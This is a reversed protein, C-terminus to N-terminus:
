SGEFSHYSIVIPADKPFRKVAYIINHGNITVSQVIGPKKLLGLKLDHLPVCKINIFGAGKLAAEVAAYDQQQYGLVSLPIKVKDSASEEKPAENNGKPYQWIYVAGGIACFGAFAVMYFASDEDGSAHAAMYGIITLALGLAFLALSIKIKLSMLKEDSAMKKAELELQKLRIIQETEAQKVQAEDIHRYIYENENNILIKAGCYTCFAQKRGEEINLTAGCDPCKVSILNVAM